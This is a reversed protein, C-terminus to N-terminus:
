KKLHFIQFLFQPIVRELKLGVCEANACWWVSMIFDQEINRKEFNVHFFIIM